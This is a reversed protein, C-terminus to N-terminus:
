AIGDCDKGVRPKSISQEYNSDTSQESSSDIKVSDDTQNIVELNESNKTSSESSYKGGAGFLKGGGSKKNSSENNVESSSKYEDIDKIDEITHTKSSGSESVKVAVTETGVNVDKCAAIPDAAKSLDPLGANAPLISILLSTTAIFPSSLKLFNM